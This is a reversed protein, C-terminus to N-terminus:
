RDTSRNGATPNATCEGRKRIEAIIDARDCERRAIDLCEALEDARVDAFAAALRPVFSDGPGVYERDNAELWAMARATDPPVEGSSDTAGPAASSGSSSESPSSSASASGSTTNSCAEEKAAGACDETVLARIARAIDRPSWEDKDPDKEAVRAAAEIAENWGTVNSRQALKFAADNRDSERGAGSTEAEIAHELHDLMWAQGVADIPIGAQAWSRIKRAVLRAAEVLDHSAATATPRRLEGDIFRRATAMDEDCMEAGYARVHAIIRDALPTTEESRPERRIDRWAHVHKAPRRQWGNEPTMLPWASVDLMRTACEMVVVKSPEHMHGIVEYERGRPNVFRAGIEPRSFATETRLAAGPACKACLRMSVDSCSYAKVPGVADCGTCVQAESTRPPGWKSGCRACDYEDLDEERALSCGSCADGTRPAEIGLDEGVEAAAEAMRLAKSPADTSGAGDKRAGSMAEGERVDRM